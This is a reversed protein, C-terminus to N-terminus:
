REYFRRDGAWEEFVLSAVQAGNFNTCFSLQWYISLKNGSVFFLDAAYPKPYEEDGDVCLYYWPANEWFEVGYVVYGCGLDIDIKGGSRFLKDKVVSLVVKDSIDRLNNINCIM